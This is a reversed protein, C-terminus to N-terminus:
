RLDKGNVVTVAQPNEPPPFGATLTAITGAIIPFYFTILRWCLIAVNIINAKFFLSFLLYFSGEAAGVAGPTPIFSSVLSVFAQAAMMTFLSASRLGFGRYVAYPIAFQVFLQILSLLLNVVILLPYKKMTAFTDSFKTIESDLLEIFHEPRRILHIKAGLRIIWSSVRKLTKKFFAISVLFILVIFNIAFGVLALAVFGSVNVIFYQLKFVLMVITAFTLAVQFVIFKSLLSTLACHLPIKYKVMYYAQVPQGGSSFPTICNFLQGIMSVRFIQSFKTNPALKKNILHLVISELLWYLVMLLCGLLLWNLRVTKFISITAEFGDVFLIYCILFLFSFICVVINVKNKM